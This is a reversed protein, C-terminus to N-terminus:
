KAGEILKEYTTNQAIEVLAGMVEFFEESKYIQSPDAYINILGSAVNNKYFDVIEFGEKKYAQGNFTDKENDYFLFSDYIRLPESVLGTIPIEPLGFKDFVAGYIFSFYPITSTSYKYKLEGLLKHLYRLQKRKQFNGFHPTRFGKVEIGLIDKLVKDGMLVDKKIEEYSINYYDFVSEYGTETKISHNKYGHNIFEAGNELVKQYEKRGKILLEGPVALVPTIGIKKLKEIIEGIVEIDKDTDCDFSLIFHLKKLGSIKSYTNYLKKRDIRSKLFIVAMKPESFVKIIRNRIKKLVSHIRM